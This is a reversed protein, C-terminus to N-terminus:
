ENLSRRARFSMPSFEAAFQTKGTPSPVVVSASAPV